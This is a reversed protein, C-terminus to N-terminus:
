TKREPWNQKNEPNKHNIQKEYVGPNLHKIYDLLLAEQGLKM